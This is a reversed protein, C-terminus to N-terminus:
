VHEEAAVAEREFSINRYAEDGTMGHRRNHMWEAAYQWLFPILGLRAVQRVHALEHRILREVEAQPRDLMRPSLYIRRGLTIGIVDRALLPKLWRPYDFRLHARADALATQLDSSLNM